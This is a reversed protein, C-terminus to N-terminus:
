RNNSKSCEKIEARIKNNKDTKIYCKSAKALKGSIQDLSSCKFNKQINKINTTETNKM